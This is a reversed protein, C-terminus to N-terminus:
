HFFGSTGGHCQMCLDTFTAVAYRRWQASKSSNLRIPISSYTFRTRMISCVVTQKSRWNSLVSSFMIKQNAFCLWPHKKLCSRSFHGVKAHLTSVVACCKEIQHVFIGPVRNACDRYESVALLFLCCFM